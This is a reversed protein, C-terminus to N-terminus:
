RPYMMEEGHKECEGSMTKEGVLVGHRLADEYTAGDDAIGSNGEVESLGGPAGMRAAGFAFLRRRILFTKM